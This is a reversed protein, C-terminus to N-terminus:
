AICILVMSSHCSCYTHLDFVITWMSCVLLNFSATTVCTILQGGCCHCLLLLEDRAACGTLGQGWSQMISHGVSADQQMRDNDRLMLSIGTAAPQLQNM